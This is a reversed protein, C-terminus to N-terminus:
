CATYGCAFCKQCGEIRYLSLKGCDPCIQTAMHSLPSPEDPTSDVVGGGYGLQTLALAFADAIGEVRLPGFGLSQGGSLGRLHSVVNSLKQQSTVGDGTRLFLSTVIALAQTLTHAESGSKKTLAFVEFPEGDRTNVTVFLSGSPAEIKVTHGPVVSPRTSYPKPEEEKKLVLVQEDRSGDRYVTGGKCGLTYLLWYLEGVQEKTYENPVNCTKSIASDTWKQIAAQVTIHGKPTLDM